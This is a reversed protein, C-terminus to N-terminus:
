NRPDGKFHVWLYDFTAPIGQAPQCGALGDTRNNFGFPPQQPTPGSYALVERGTAYMQWSTVKADIAGFCQPFVGSLDQRAAVAYWPNGQSIPDNQFDNYQMIQMFAPMDFVNAQDRRFIQARVCMQYDNMQPLFWESSSNYGAQAALEPVSFLNYSPWYGYQLTQTRDRSAVVGPAQEAIWLTNPVLDEGPTFLKMDLVIWQNNYTGSNYRSFVEVWEPGSNAMRTAVMVRIWYLVTQPVVNGDYMTANMIGVTTETIALGTDAFYFDDISALNGPYSSFSVQKSVASGYNLTYHKYIRLMTNYTSWTAHGFFIDSLDLALKVLASCHTYPATMVQKLYENRRLSSANVRKSVDLAPVLDEIDGALNIAQLMMFTFATKNSAAAAANLGDLLGEFQRVQLGVQTWYLSAVSQSAVQQKVWAWNESVFSAVKEDLPSTTSGITNVFNNWTAAYTASGEGFGAAYAQDLDSFDSSTTINLVDWGSSAMSPLYSVYAAARDDSGIEETAEMGVPRRLAFAGKSPSLYIQLQQLAPQDATVVLSAFCLVLMATLLKPM